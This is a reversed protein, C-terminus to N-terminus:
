SFFEGIIESVSNSLSLNSIKSNSFLLGFNLLIFEGEFITPKLGDFFKLFDLCLSFINDKDFTNVASSKFFKSFFIIFKKSILFSEKNSYLTSGLISPMDADNVYLFPIKIAPTDLPSPCLPSSIVSFKFVILSIGFFIFALFKGCSM